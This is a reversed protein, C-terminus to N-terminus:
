EFHIIMNHLIMCCTIWYVAVHLDKDKAVKLRLEHLSQFCGKLAAFAHEFRSFITCGKSLYCNYLHKRCTLNGAHPKKFPVACWTKSPYASDAWI